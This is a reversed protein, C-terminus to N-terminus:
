ECYKLDIRSRSLQGLPCPGMSPNWTAFLADASEPLPIYPSRLSEWTGVPHGAERAAELLTWGTGGEPVDVLRLVDWDDMAELQALFSAVAARPERALLDFRCSHPNAAASLERVPVGHLRNRQWVLPMAADMAGSPGNQVLVRWPM